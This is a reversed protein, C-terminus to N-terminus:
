VLLQPLLKKAHCLGQGLDIFFDGITFDVLVDFQKDIHGFAFEMTLPDEQQAPDDDIGARAVVIRHFDVVELHDIDTSRGPRVFIFRM